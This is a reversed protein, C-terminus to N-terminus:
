ARGFVDSRGHTHWAGRTRGWLLSARGRPRLRGERPLHRQCSEGLLPEQGPRLRSLGEPVPLRVPQLFAGGNQKRGGGYRRLVYTLLGNDPAVYRGRPTSLLLARRETGVGPDVVALHVTEPPFYTCSADLVFAAHPIDQAPLDHSVDILTAGPCRTLIVGKMAAVYGDRWGFDSTLTILSRRESDSRVVTM